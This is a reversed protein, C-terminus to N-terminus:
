ATLTELARRVTRQLLGVKFGNESQPGAGDAAKLSAARLAAASLKQGRLLREAADLRWPRTGVGGAALQVDRVFGDRLELGAAVSVLAFAFSQRDRVKVYTAHAAAPSAPVVIATVIEGPALTTEIHPTDGPLRYFANIDVTRIAANRGQIEVKARAATLAVPFDSPHTAICHPSGGFIALDRNRGHIAQCGSGPVRKNCAAFGVDRFYGCRTRQLLNGGATGMNRIQPSAAALLAQGLAPATKEVLPHTAVEAMTALAGIRLGHEDQSIRKLDLGAIDVVLAAPQVNNRWLQMLDTGGAIFSAQDAQGLRQAQALDSAAELSFAQM